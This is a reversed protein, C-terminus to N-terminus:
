SGSPASAAPSSGRAPSLPAPTAAREQGGGRGRSQDRRRGGRRMARLQRARDENRFKLKVTRDDDDFGLIKLPKAALGQLVLGIGLSVVLVFGVGVDRHHDCARMADLVALGIFLGAAAFGYWPRRMCDDCAPMQLTIGRYRTASIVTWVM